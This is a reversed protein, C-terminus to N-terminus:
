VYDAVWQFPVDQKVANRMSELQSTLKYFKADHRSCLDQYEDPNFQFEILTRHIFAAGEPGSMGHLRDFWSEDCNELGVARKFVVASYHYYFFWSGIPDKSTDVPKKYLSVRRAM